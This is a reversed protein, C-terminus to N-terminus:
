PREPDNELDSAQLKLPPQDYANVICFLLHLVALIFYSPVFGLDALCFGVVPIMFLAGLPLLYNFFNTYYRAANRPLLPRCRSPRHFLAQNCCIM